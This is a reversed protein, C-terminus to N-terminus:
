SKPDFYLSDLSLNPNYNRDKHLVDGWRHLMYDIESNFRKVKLPNDEYGRSVSEFHILVSHPTYINYFNLERLKLCLDVDNFAVKLNEQDLGNVLLYKSKEVVLCAATVATVEHVVNVRAHYGEDKASLRRFVHGAIGTVGTVVGAHQIKGDEYLLKAGVAGTTPQIALGVMEKLWSENVVSTDNNLLCLVKGGALRAALNNMESYNFEGVYSIIHINEYTTKLKELYQITDEECSNNDVILIEFNSYNTKEVLGQIIKKLLNVRDKIPIIVSVKTSSEEVDYIIHNRGFHGEEIRANINNRKIYDIAAKQRAHIAQELYRDSFSGSGNFVRWHYLIKPIHLVDERRIISVVRLLFDHDQSGEFGTRLGNVKKFISDRVCCLHNIYNHSILMQENYDPKFHHGKREGESDIKDEDTYILKTNPNQNIAIVLEALANEPLLDDHDMFAYWEGCALAAASNTARSINGNTERLVLKIRKDKKAWRKLEARTVVNNSFDDAICVEWNQYIQNSISLLCENLFNVETNYTPLLISILPTKKQLSLLEILESRDQTSNYDHKKIWNSYKHEDSKVHSEKAGISVAISYLGAIGNLKIINLIERLLKFCGNPERIRRLLYNVLGIVDSFM